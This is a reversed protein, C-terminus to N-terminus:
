LYWEYERPLIGDLFAEFEAQKVERYIRLYDEGFYGPLISAQQLRDLAQWLTLPLSPDVEAGANGGQMEGPDLAASM